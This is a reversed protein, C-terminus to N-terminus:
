HVESKGYAVPVDYRGELYLVWVLKNLMIPVKVYCLVMSTKLSRLMYLLM